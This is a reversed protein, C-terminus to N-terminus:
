PAYDRIEVGNDSSVLTFAPEEDDQGRANQAYAVTGITAAAALIGIGTKWGM